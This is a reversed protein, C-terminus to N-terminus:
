KNHTIEEKMILTNTKIYSSAISCANKLAEDVSLYSDIIGYALLDVEKQTMVNIGCGKIKLIHNIQGPYIKVGANRCITKIPTRLIKSTKCDKNKKYIDLLTRGGGLVVGSEFSKKVAGIADDLKLRLTQYETITPVGVLIKVVGNELAGLRKTYLAEDVSNLKYKKNLRQKYSKVRNKLLEQSADVDRILTCKEQEISIKSCHGCDKFELEGIGNGADQVTGNTVAALDMYVDDMKTENVFIFQYKMQNKILTDILIRLTNPNFNPNLVFVFPDTVHDAPISNFFKNIGAQTMIGEKMLVIWAQDAEWKEGDPCLSKMVDSMYGSDISFGSTQEVKIDSGERDHEIVINMEKGAAKYAAEVVEGIYPIKTSITAVDKVMEDTMDMRFEKLTNRYKAVDDELNKAVIQPHRGLLMQNYGWKYMQNTLLITLTTGDLAEKETNGAAEIMDIAIMRELGDFNRAEKAVTVGDDTITPKGFGDNIAVLLGKAGMTPVVLDNIDQFVNKIKRRAQRNKLAKIM